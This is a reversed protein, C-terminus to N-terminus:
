GPGSGIYAMGSCGPLYIINNKILWKHGVAPCLGVGSGNNSM